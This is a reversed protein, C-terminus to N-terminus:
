GARADAVFPLTAATFGDPDEDLGAHSLHDLVILRAGAVAKALAPAFRTCTLLDRAAHTILTPAETRPLVDRAGHGPLADRRAM